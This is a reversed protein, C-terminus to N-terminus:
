SPPQFTPRDFTRPLHGSYFPNSDHVSVDNTLLSSQVGTENSIGASFSHTVSTSAVVMRAADEVAIGIGPNPTDDVGNTPSNRFGSADVRSDVVAVKSFETAQVGYQVNSDIVCNEVTVRAKNRALVGITWNRITLNRLVVIFTGDSDVIVGPQNQRTVNGPDQAPPAFAELNAAVGPAAELIVNGAATVVVQELFFGSSVITIRGNQNIAGTLGIQLAGNITGFVKDDGDLDEAAGTLLDGDWDVRGEVFVTHNGLAAAPALLLAAALLGLIPRRRAHSISHM